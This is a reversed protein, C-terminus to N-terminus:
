LFLQNSSLPFSPSFCFCVIRVFDTSAQDPQYFVKMLTYVLLGSLAIRTIKKWVPRRPRTEPQGVHSPLSDGKLPVTEDVDHYAVKEDTYPTYALQRTETQNEM